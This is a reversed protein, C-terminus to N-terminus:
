DHVGEATRGTQGYAHARLFTQTSTRWQTAPKGRDQDQHSVGSPAMRASSSAIIHDCEDPRLFNHVQLVLPQLSLTEIVLDVEAGDTGAAAAGQADAAVAM